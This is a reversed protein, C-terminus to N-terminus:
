AVKDVALYEAPTKFDLARHPRVHNYFHQYKALAEGAAEVTFAGEYLNWFEERTTANAREVCGNFQPRRPPLVFLPINMRQCEREFEARFESGGDVQISRLGPMERKLDNLFRKANNATARSYVRAVMQKGVPSLAKFEKLGEGDRTVSMHDIQVFEGPQAARTGYVWRQAHGHGFRRPRKPKVRGRCFACPRVRGLRVGKALIRGLSSASLQVGQRALLVRLRQKGMYPYERRLAWVQRECASTWQRTRCRRPRTSRKDLAGVGGQRYRKRWRYYTARSWGLARLATRESCGEARLEEYTRLRGLREIAEGSATEDVKFSRYSRIRLSQIQM